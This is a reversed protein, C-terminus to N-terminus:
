RKSIQLIHKIFRNALPTPLLLVEFCWVVIYSFIALCFGSVFSSNPFVILNVFVFIILMTTQICLIITKFTFMPRLSGSLQIHQSDNQLSYICTYWHCVLNWRMQWSLFTRRMRDGFALIHVIKEKYFIEGSDFNLLNVMEIRMTFSKTPADDVGALWCWNAKYFHMEARNNPQSPKHHHWCEYINDLIYTSITSCFNLKSCASM